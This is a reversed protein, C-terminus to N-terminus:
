RRLLLLPPTGLSTIRANTGKLDAAGPLPPPAFVGAGMVPSGPVEAPVYIM